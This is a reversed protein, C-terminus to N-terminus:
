RGAEMLARYAAPDDIDSLIGSDDLDLFRTGLAHARVVDRAAATSPLALFEPVLARSFWVPHGRRGQYRPVALTSGTSAALLADLTEPAVAPHDVLTLLVGEADPPLARLGCQLSGTQGTAYDTNTVFTATRTAAARVQDAAAGLVVIVPDVRPAFLGILRDLFTEERYRLTAKPTGM